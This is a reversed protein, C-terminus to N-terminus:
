KVVPFLDGTTKKTKKNWEGAKRLPMNRLKNFHKHEGYFIIYIM